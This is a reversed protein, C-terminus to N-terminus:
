ADIILTVPGDNVSSVKMDAGFIGEMVHVQDRLADVFVKYLRQGEDFPAAKVFSPRRSSWVDGYLTFNSVVMVTPKEVADQLSLSMKGTEDNFIRLGAVRDALKWAKADDSDKGAAVMVLFGPGCSSVVEGDVECTASLVRTVM